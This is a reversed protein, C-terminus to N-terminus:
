LASQIYDRLSLLVSLGLWIAGVVLLASLAMLTLTIWIADFRRRTAQPRTM